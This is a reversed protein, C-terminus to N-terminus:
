DEISSDKQNELQQMEELLQNIWEKAAKKDVGKITCTESLNSNGNSAVIEVENKGLKVKVTKVADTEKFNTKENLTFVYVNEEKNFEIKQLGQKLILKIQAVFDQKTANLNEGENVFNGNADVSM